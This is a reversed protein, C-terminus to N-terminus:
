SVGGVRYRTLKFKGELKCRRIRRSSTPGNRPVGQPYATMWSYIGPPHGLEELGDAGSNSILHDEHARKEDQRSVSQRVIM